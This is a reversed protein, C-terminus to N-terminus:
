GQGKFDTLSYLIADTQDPLYKKAICELKFGLLAARRCGVELGVPVSLELRHYPQKILWAKIGRFVPVFNTKSKENFIAWIQGRGDWYDTIGGCVMPEGRVLGTFAQEKEILGKAWKEVWSKLFANSPQDYLGEFHELKFPIIEFSSM